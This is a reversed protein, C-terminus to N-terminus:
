ECSDKLREEQDTYWILFKVDKLGILRSRFYWQRQSLSKLSKTFFLLIALVYGEYKFSEKGEAVMIFANLLLPGASLAIVKLLAFFSFQVAFFFLDFDALLDLLGACAHWLGSNIVNGM